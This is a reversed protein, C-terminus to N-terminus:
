QGAAEAGGANPKRARVQTRIQPVSARLEADRSDQLLQLTRDEGWFWEFGTGAAVIRNLLVYKAGSPVDPDELLRMCIGRHQYLAWLDIALLCPVVVDNDGSSLVSAVDIDDELRRQMEPVTHSVAYLMQDANPRKQELATGVFSPLLHFSGELFWKLGLMEILNDARHSETRVVAAVALDHERKDSIPLGLPRHWLNGEVYESVRKWEATTLDVPPQRMVKSVACETLVWSVALPSVAALALAGAVGVFVRRRTM